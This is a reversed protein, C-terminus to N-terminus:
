ELFSDNILDVLTQIKGSNIDNEVIEPCKYPHGGIYERMKRYAVYSGEKGVNKWYLNWGNSYKKQSIEKYHKRDYEDKTIAYYTFSSYKSIYIYDAEALRKLWKAITARSVSVGNESMIQAMEVKPRKPFTGDCFLYYCFYKFKEFDIGAALGIETICYM